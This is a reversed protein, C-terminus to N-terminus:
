LTPTPPQSIHNAVPDADHAIGSLDYKCFPCRDATKFVRRGALYWLTFGMAAAVVALFVCSRFMRDIQVLRYTFAVDAYRVDPNSIQM